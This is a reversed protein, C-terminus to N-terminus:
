NALRVFFNEEEKELCMSSNTDNGIMKVSIQYNLSPYRSVPEMLKISVYNMVYKNWCIIEKAKLLNESSVSLM